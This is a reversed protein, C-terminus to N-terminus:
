GQQRLRAKVRSKLRFFSHYYDHCNSCVVYGPRCSCEIGWRHFFAERNREDLDISDTLPPRVFAGMQPEPHSVQTQPEKLIKGGLGFLQKLTRTALAITVFNNVTSGQITSQLSIGIGTLQAMFDSEALPEYRRSTAAPSYFKFYEVSSESVPHGRHSESACIRLQPYEKNRDRRFHTCYCGEGAWVWGLSEALEIARKTTLM